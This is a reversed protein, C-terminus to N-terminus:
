LRAAGLLLHAALVGGDVDLPRSPGQQLRLAEFQEVTELLVALDGASSM